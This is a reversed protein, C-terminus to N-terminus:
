PAFGPFATWLTGTFIRNLRVVVQMFIDHPREPSGTRDVKLTRGGQTQVHSDQIGLDQPQADFLVPHQDRVISFGHGDVERIEDLVM